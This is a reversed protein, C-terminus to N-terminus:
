KLLELRKYLEKVDRKNENKVKSMFSNTVTVKDFMFDTVSSTEKDYLIEDCFGLDLAKKASMWTEKDMMNSIKSRSLGTKSEYANMISEKVESLLAIGKKMDTEEGWVMTSPNHIMLMGVPSMLIEDGAMAIVSAASAALGDIKVTIKGKYEKLMNYIKAAAFADGGPSNIWVTIDGKERQLENKFEEPTVDDDFWSNEAIYGDLYLIRESENKVWKWFKM